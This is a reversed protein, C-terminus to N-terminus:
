GSRGKVLRYGYLLVLAGIIATVFSGFNLGDVGSGVGLATALYGGVFAGGIGLLISVILGGPDKGPMIWKAILGAVLGLVIWGIISVCERGPPTPAVLDSDGASNDLM